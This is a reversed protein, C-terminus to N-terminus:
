YFQKLTKGVALFFILLFEQHPVLGIGPALDAPVTNRCVVHVGLLFVAQGVWVM